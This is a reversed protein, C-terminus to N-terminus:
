GQFLEPAGSSVSIGFVAYWLRDLRWFGLSGAHYGWPLRYDAEGAQVLLLLGHVVCETHPFLEQNRLCQMSRICFWVSRTRFYNKIACASCVEYASGCVGHASIIIAILATSRIDRVDRGMGRLVRVTTVPINEDVFIKM